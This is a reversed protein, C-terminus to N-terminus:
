LIGLQRTRGQITDQGEDLNMYVSHFEPFPAKGDNMDNPTLPTGVYTWKRYGTPRKLEGQDNFTILATKKSEGEKKPVVQAQAEPRLDSTAFILAVAVMAPIALLLGFRRMELSTNM